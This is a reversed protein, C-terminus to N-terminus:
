EKKIVKFFYGQEKARDYFEILLTPMTERSLIEQNLFEPNVLSYTADLVQTTLAQNAKKLDNLFYVEKNLGIYLDIVGSSFMEKNSRLHQGEKSDFRNYLYEQDNLYIVLQSATAKKPDDGRLTVAQEKFFNIEKLFEGLLQLNVPEIEFGEIESVFSIKEIQKKQFLQPKLKFLLFVDLLLFLIFALALLFQKKM